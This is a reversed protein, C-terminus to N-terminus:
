EHMQLFQPIHSLNPSSAYSSYNHLADLITEKSIRINKINIHTKVGGRTHIIKNHLEDYKDVISEEREGDIIPIEDPNTWTTLSLPINGDIPTLIFQNDSIKPTCELEWGVNKVPLRPKIIVLMINHEVSYDMIVFKCKFYKEEEDGVPAQTMSAQKSDHQFADLPTKTDSDLPAHRAFDSMRGGAAEDNIGEVYYLTADHMFGHQPRSSNYRYGEWQKNMLASDNLITYLTDLDKKEREADSKAIVIDHTDLGTAGDDVVRYKSGTRNGIKKLWEVLGGGRKMVKRSKV